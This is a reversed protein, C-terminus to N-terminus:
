SVENVSPKRPLLLLYDRFEPFTIYVKEKEVNGDGSIFSNSSAISVSSALSAIFDQLGLPHVDIGARDLATRIESADLRM